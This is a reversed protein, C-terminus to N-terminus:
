ALGDLSLFLHCKLIELPEMINEFVTKNPFLVLNQPVYSMNKDIQNLEEAPIGDFYIDGFDYSEAKGKYKILSGM